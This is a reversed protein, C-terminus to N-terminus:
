KKKMDFFRVGVSLQEKGSIDCSEDALISYAAAQQVDGILEDRVVDGCISILQNQIHPSLYTVNKKAHSLHDDLDADGSEARFQILDEFIGTHTEKGRFPLDHTGCFIVTSIISKIIKRNEEVSKQHASILQVNVPINEMLNKAAMSASKHWQSQMHNKCSEHMHKYKTFPRVIFAGLVGQIVTPPFVVCFLCLAGKVEKSYVLWPAFTKLWSILFKRQPDISDGSFNYSAPPVWHRKLLEIKETMTMTAANGMWMGVDRPASQHQSSGVSVPIVDLEKVVEFSM